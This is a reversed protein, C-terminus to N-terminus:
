SALGQPVANHLLLAQDFDTYQMVYLIPAFTEQAVPGIQQPMEVLAPRVYYADPVMEAGVREGRTVTGGASRAAQLATQMAAYANADILTGVLTGEELPNGIAVTRYAQQLRRILRPYVDGHVFLRRLTTCRQGATGMAAFAVGRLTLDLD